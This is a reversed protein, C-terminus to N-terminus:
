SKQCFNLKPILRIGWSFSLKNKKFFPALPLLETMSWSMDLLKVDISVVLVVFQDWHFQADIEKDFM